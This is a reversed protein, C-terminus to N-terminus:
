IRFLYQLKVFYQRSIQKHGLDGLDAIDSSAGAYFVSFPSLRYTILPDIEWIGYLDSYQIVMRAFFSRTFQFAFKSRFIYTEYLTKDDEIGISKHYKYEPVIQLRDFPCLTITGELITQRGMVPVEMNYAIAHGYNFGFEVGLFKTPNTNANIGFTKYGNFMIGKYKERCLLSTITIGTQGKLGMYLNLGIWEEEFKGSDFDWIKGMYLFPRINDFVRTVYNTSYYTSFDVRRFGNSVIFGNDARFTPTMESYKMVFNWNRSNRNFSSYISHGKFNEGDHAVTYKGGNFHGTDSTLIGNLEETGSVLTQMELYYNNAVYLLADMGYVSNYGTGTYRRDTLIGGIFSRSGVAHRLRLINSTSKGGNGVSTREVLPVILPSDEDHAILYAISTRGQRGIFKGALIPNNISRTHTVETFTKYLDVGEQFFPRKEPYQLAFTSNVDVQAADSEIQSFDPNITAEVTYSSSLSYKLGLSPEGDIKNDKWESFYDDPDSIGSSQYSLISPLFEIGKGPKVGKVGTV